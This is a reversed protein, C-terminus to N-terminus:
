KGSGITDGTYIRIIEKLESRIKGLDINRDSLDLKLQEISGRAIRNARYRKSFDGAATLTSLIAAIAALIAPLDRNKATMDLKLTVAAFGSFLASLYLCGFYIIFWRNSGRRYYRYYNEVESKLENREEHGQSNIKEEQMM